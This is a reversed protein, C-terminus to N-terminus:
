DNEAPNNPGLKLYLSNRLTEDSEDTITARLLQVGDTSRLELECGELDVEPLGNRQKLNANYTGDFCKAWLYVEGVPHTEGEPTHITTNQYIGEDIEFEHRQRHDGHEQSLTKVSGELIKSWPGGLDESVKPHDELWARRENDGLTDLAVELQAITCGKPDELVAQPRVSDLEDRDADSM